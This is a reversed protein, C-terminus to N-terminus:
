PRMAHAAIDPGAGTPEPQSPVAFPSRVATWIELAGFAVMGCGALTALMALSDFPVVAVLIGAVLTWLGFWEQRGRGTLEDDEWVAAIAHAIGRVAWALGLWMALLLVWNGSGLCLISAGLSVAGAIFLLARPVRGLRGGFAVTWMTAMGFLLYMGFLTGVTTLTKGPWVIIATGLLVSCIGMAMVGQRVGRGFVPAPGANVHEYTSM